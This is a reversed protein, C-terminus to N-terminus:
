ADVAGGKTAGMRDSLADDSGLEEREAITPPSTSWCPNSFRKHARPSAPREDLLVASVTVSFLSGRKTNRALWRRRRSRGAEEGHINGGRSIAEEEFHEYFRSIFRLMSRTYVARTLKDEAEEPNFVLGHQWGCWASWCAWASLELLPRWAPVHGRGM